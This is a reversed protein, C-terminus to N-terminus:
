YYAEPPTNKRKEERVKVNKESGAELANKMIRDRRAQAEQLAVREDYRTLLERAQSSFLLRVRDGLSLSGRGVDVGFRSLLQERMGRLEDELAKADVVEKILAADDEHDLEKKIKELGEREGEEARRMTEADRLFKEADEFVRESKPSSPTSGPSAPPMERPQQSPIESRPRM